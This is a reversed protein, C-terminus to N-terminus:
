TKGTPLNCSRIHIEKSNVISQNNIIDKKISKKLKRLKTLDEKIQKHILELQNVKKTLENLFDANSVKGGKQKTKKTINRKKKNSKVM